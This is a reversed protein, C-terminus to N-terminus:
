SKGGDIVTLEGAHLRAMQQKAEMEEAIQDRLAFFGHISGIFIMFYSVGIIWSMHGFILWSVLLCVFLFKQWPKLYWFAYGAIASGIYALVFLIINLM